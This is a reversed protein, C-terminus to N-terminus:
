KIEIKLARLINYKVIESDLMGVIWHKELSLKIKLISFSILLSFSRKTYLGYSNATVFGHKNRIMKLGGLFLNAQFPRFEIEFFFSKLVDVNKKSGDDFDIKSM